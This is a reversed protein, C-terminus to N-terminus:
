SSQIVISFFKFSFSFFALIFNLTLANDEDQDSELTNESIQRLFKNSPFFFPM